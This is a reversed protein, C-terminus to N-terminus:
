MAQTAAFEEQDGTAFLSLFEIDAPNDTGELTFSLENVLVERGAAAEVIVRLLPNHENRILVPHVPQRSSAILDKLATANPAAMLETAPELVLYLWAIWPLTPLRLQNTM